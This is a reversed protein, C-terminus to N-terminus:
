LNLVVGTFIGCLEQSKSLYWFIHVDISIYNFYMFCFVIQVCFNQCTSISKFVDGGYPYCVLEKLYEKSQQGCAIVSKYKTM